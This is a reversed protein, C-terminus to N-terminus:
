INLIEFIEANNTSAEEPASRPEFIVSSNIDPDTFM